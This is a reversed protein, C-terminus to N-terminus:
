PFSNCVQKFEEDESLKKIFAFVKEKKQIEQTLTEYKKRLEKLDFEVSSLSPLVINEQTENSHKSFLCSSPIPSNTISSVRITSLARPSNKHVSSRPSIKRSSFRRPSTKVPSIRIPSNHYSTVVPPSTCIPSATINSVIEPSNQATDRKKVFSLPSQLERTENKPLSPSILSKVIFSVTENLNEATPKEEPLELQKSVKKKEMM